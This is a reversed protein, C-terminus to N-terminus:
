DKSKFLGFIEGIDGVKHTDEEIHDFIDSGEYDLYDILCRGYMPIPQMDTTFSQIM